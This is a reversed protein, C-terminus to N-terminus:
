DYAPCIKRSRPGGRGGGARGRGSDEQEDCGFVLNLGFRFNLLRANYPWPIGSSADRVYRVPIHDSALYFQAGRRGIALGFGIQDFKYNSVTYSLTGQLFSWPSYSGALTLALHPRRDFLETRLLASVDLKPVVRYEAGAYIKTTLFTLYPDTSAQFQFSEGVSDVIANFFDTSGGSSAYQRLDFGSFYVAANADFRNANSKWRIFGLDVISASLTLEDSYYYIAGLDIAAGHNGNFIFDQVISSFSNSFDVGDIIGRSDVSVDM